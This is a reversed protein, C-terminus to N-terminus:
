VRVCKKCEKKQKHEIKQKAEKNKLHYAHGGVLSVMILFIVFPDM